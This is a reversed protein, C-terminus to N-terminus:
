IEVQISYTGDTGETNYFVIQIWPGLRRLLNAITTVSEGSQKPTTTYTRGGTSFTVGTPAVNVTHPIPSQTIASQANGFGDTMTFVMDVNSIVCFNCEELGQTLVFVSSSATAGILQGQVVYGASIGPM